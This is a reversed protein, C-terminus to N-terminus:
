YTAPTSLRFSRWNELLEFTPRQLHMCTGDPEGGKKAASSEAANGLSQMKSGSKHPLLDVKRLRSLRFGYVYRSTELPLPYTGALVLQGM